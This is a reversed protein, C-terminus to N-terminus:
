FTTSVTVDAKHEILYDAYVYRNRMVALHLPTRGEDDTHNVHAKLTRILLHVIHSKDISKTDQM